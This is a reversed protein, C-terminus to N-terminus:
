KATWTSSGTKVYLTTTAGGDTRLYLDGQSGLGTDPAGTGFHVVPYAATNVEKVPSNEYVRLDGADYSSATGIQVYLQCLDGASWGSIDQSQEAMTSSTSNIAGSVDVGNRYIKSNVSFTNNGSRLMWKITLTGGRPLYLEGIKTYSADTGGHVMKTPGAILYSGTAYSGALSAYTTTVWAPNASAGQTKLLQGSTGTALCSIVGTSSFYPIAGQLCASLDAGTGGGNSALTQYSPLSSAGNSVLPLYQSGPTLLQWGSNYVPIKGTALTGSPAVATIWSSGNDFNLSNDSTNYVVRGQTGNSPLSSRIEFFRYGGTTNANNNDLGGNIVAALASFNGNLNTSTVQGNTAYTTPVTVTDAFASTSILLAIILKIM